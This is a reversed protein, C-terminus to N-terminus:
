TVNGRVRELAAVLRETEETTLGAIVTRDAAAVPADLEGLLSLGDATIWAHVLRRDEGSRERRVLGREELRDLFRTVGPTKEIMRAGVEMTPVPEPAAGRLIRLVNYQQLTLGRDEVAGALHRRAADATGLLSVIVRGADANRATSTGSKTSM